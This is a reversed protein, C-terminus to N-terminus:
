ASSRSFIQLPAVRAIHDFDADNHFLPVQHAIACAAVLCDVSSPTVGASRCLRFLKAAEEFRSLPTPSDLLDMALFTDLFLEYRAPTETGRLM